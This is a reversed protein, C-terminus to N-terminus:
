PISVIQDMEVCWLWKRQLGRGHGPGQAEQKRDQHFGELMMLQPSAWRRSLRSAGHGRRNDPDKDFLLAKETPHMKM